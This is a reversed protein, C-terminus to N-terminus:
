GGIRCALSLTEGQATKSDHRKVEFRLDLREAVARTRKLLRGLAKICGIGSCRGNEYGRLTWHVKDLRDGPMLKSCRKPRHVIIQEDIWVDALRHLDSFSAAKELLVKLKKKPILLQKESLPPRMSLVRRALWKKISPQTTSWRKQGDIRSIDPQSLMSVLGTFIADGDPGSITWGQETKEVKFRPSDLLQRTVPILARSADPEDMRTDSSPDKQHNEVADMGRDPPTKPSKPKSFLFAAAICLSLGLLAFGLRRNSKEHSPQITESGENEAFSPPLLAASISPIVSEAPTVTMSTDTQLQAERSPRIPKAISKLLSQVVATTTPRQEPDIQLCADILGALSPDITPMHETISVAGRDLLLGMLEAQTRGPNSRTGSLMEYLIGGFAYLDTRADVPLGKLQEPAMYNLTGLALGTQTKFDPSELKVLGFDLLKIFPLDDRVIVMINDPKLDRHVLEVEHAAKLADLIQEAFDLAQELSLRQNALYDTLTQGDLYEMILFPEDGPRMGVDFVRAVHQSRESVLQAAKAENLMRRRIQKRQDEAIDATHLLKVARYVNLRTDFVRFVQGMGGEGLRDELRYRGDALTKLAPSAIGCSPCFASSEEDLVYGCAFCTPPNTNM